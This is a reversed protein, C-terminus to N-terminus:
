VKGLRIGVSRNRSLHGFCTLMMDGMGSLGAITTARAGMAVALRMLESAGRTVLGATSNLGLGLGEVVGAAVCGNYRRGENEKRGFLLNLYLLHNRNGIAIVNKLAGGVEVGIVDDSTYVRLTPNQFLQQVQEALNADQSAVVVLTPM